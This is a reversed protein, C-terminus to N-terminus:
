RAPLDLLDLLQRARHEFTHEALVRERARRGLEAAVPPEALLREYAEVAEGASSVVLLEEGPEFWREVGACPNSVITAGAAALEFPRATSSAYLGAHSSRTVNLNIRAESIARVFAPIPLHGLCPLRGRDGTFGGGGLAFRAEPLRRSPEAALATLWDRRFREGYGYFFVDTRKAVPLPRFLEPDAAFFLPEHRRAGLELLRAGGGESNSIVLDYEGPDAGRYMNFSEEAGGFEPLSLPVDCDYFVVPVGFRERLATPIGALHSMPVTFVVVADIRNRRLLEELHRRWRPTVAQRVIRRVARDAATEPPDAEPRASRRARGAASRALQFLEGERYCPNGAVRWWPSEVPRGRYPTVLVDVGLLALAKWLQWWVPTCGYRFRLDVASAVALISPARVRPLISPRRAM